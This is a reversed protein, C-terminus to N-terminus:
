DITVEHHGEDDSSVKIKVDGNHDFSDEEEYRRHYHIIDEECDNCSLGEKTMTWSHEPMDWYWVNQINSVNHLVKHSGESLYVKYGVPLYLKVDVHQGRFKDGKEMMFYSALTIQNSDLQYAYNIKQALNFAIQKDKGQSFRTVEITPFSDKTAKEIDFDVNHIPLDQLNYGKIQDSEFTNITITSDTVVLTPNEKLNAEMKFKEAITVITYIGMIVGIIWLLFSGLM